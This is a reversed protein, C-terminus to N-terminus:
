HPDYLKHQRNRIQFLDVDYKVITEVFVRLSNRALVELIGVVIIIDFLCVLVYGRSFLKVEASKVPLLLHQSSSM